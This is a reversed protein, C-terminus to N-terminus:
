HLLMIPFIFVVSYVSHYHAPLLPGSVWIIARGNKMIKENETYETCDTTGMESDLIQPLIAVAGTLM